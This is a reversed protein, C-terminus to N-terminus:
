KTIGEGAAGVLSVGGTVSDLKRGRDKDRRHKEVAWSGPVHDGASLVARSLGRNTGPCSSKTCLLRVIEDSIETSACPWACALTRWGVELIYLTKLSRDGAEPTIRVLVRLQGLSSTLIEWTRHRHNASRLEWGGGYKFSDEIPRQKVYGGEHSMHFGTKYNV